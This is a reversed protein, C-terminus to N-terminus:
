RRRVKQCGEGPWCYRNGTQSSYVWHENKLTRGCGPTACRYTRKSKTKM